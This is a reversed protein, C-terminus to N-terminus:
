EFCIAEYSPLCLVYFKIFPQFLIHNQFLYTHPIILSLLSYRSEFVQIFYIYSFLSDPATSILRIACIFLPDLTLVTQALTLLSFIHSIYWLSFSCILLPDLMPLCLGLQAILSFIGSLDTGEDPDLLMLCGELTM